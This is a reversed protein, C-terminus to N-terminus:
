AGITVLRNCAICIRRVRHNRRCYQGNDFEMISVKAPVQSDLVAAPLGTRPEARIEEWREFADAALDIQTLVETRTWKKSNNYDATHRNEQLRIFASAINKLHKVRPDNPNPFKKANAQKCAENMSSHDFARALENRQRANKWNASSAMTLRHFLAYYASSVARRLNAQRPKKSDIKALATAQELLHRPFERV